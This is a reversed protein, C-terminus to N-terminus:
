RKRARRGQATEAARRRRREKPDDPLSRYIEVRDGASLLRAPDVRKGFIGIELPQSGIEPFERALGAAEVAQLATMGDRLPVVVVRQRDPRAYVVEVSPLRGPEHSPAM